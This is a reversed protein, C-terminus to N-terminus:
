YCLQPYLPSSKAINPLAVKLLNCWITNIADTRQSEPFMNKEKVLRITDECIGSFLDLMRQYMDNTLNFADHHKPLPRTKMERYIEIMQKLDFISLAPCLLNISNAAFMANQVIDHDLSVRHFGDGDILAIGNKTYGINEFHLDHIFTAAVAWKAVGRKGLMKNTAQKHKTFQLGDINKSGAYLEDSDPNLKYFRTKVIQIGINHKVFEQNFREYSLHQQPSLSTTPKFLKLYHTAGHFECVMGKSEGAPNRKCLADPPLLAVSQGHVSIGDVIVNIMRTEALARPILILLFLLTPWSLKNLDINVFPEPQNKNTTKATNRALKRAHTRRQRGQAAIDAPKHRGHIQM